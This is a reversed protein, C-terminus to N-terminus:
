WGPEANRWIVGWEDVRDGVDHCSGHARESPGYKGAAGTFDWEFQARFREYEDKRLVPVGPLAWLERPARDPKEFRLARRVGERSNM